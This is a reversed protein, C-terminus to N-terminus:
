IMSLFTLYDCYFYTYLTHHCDRLYASFLMQDLLSHPIMIDDDRRRLEDRVGPLGVDFRM